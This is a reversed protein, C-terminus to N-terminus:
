FSYKISLQLNRGPASSFVQGFVPSQPAVLFPVQFHAHNFLNRVDCRLDIRHSEWPTIRKILSVSWLNMGPGDFVNRGLSGNRDDTAERFAAPNFFFNGQRVVGNVKVTRVERPDFKEYPGVFDPSAAFRGSLEIEAERIDMPM